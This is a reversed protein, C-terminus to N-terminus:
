QQRLILKTFSEIEKSKTVHDAFMYVDMRTNKIIIKTLIMHESVYKICVKIDQYKIHILIGVLDRVEEIWIWAM